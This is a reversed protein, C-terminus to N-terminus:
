MGWETKMHHTTDSSYRTADSDDEKIYEEPPHVAPIPAPARTFGMNIYLRSLLGLIIVISCLILSMFPIIDFGYTNTKYLIQIVLQPIDEILLNIGSLWLIFNQYEEYQNQFLQLLRIDIICMFSKLFIELCNNGTQYLIYLGAVFNISTPITFSFLSPVFLSEIVRSNYILFAIEFTFDYALLLCYSYAFKQGSKGFCKLVIYTLIAVEIPIALEILTIKNQNAFFTLDDLTTNFTTSNISIYNTPLTYNVSTQNTTSTFNTSNTIAM